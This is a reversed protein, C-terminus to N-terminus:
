GLGFEWVPFHEGTNEFGFLQYLKLSATNDHQTNVSIMPAGTSDFYEVLGSLLARGIGRGQWGPLVALRALHGNDSGATSIQYGILRGGAEAVTATAAHSLAERLAAVSYQWPSEFAAADVAFMARLDSSRAPRIEVSHPLTPRKAHPTSGLTRCLTVVHNVQAFQWRQLHPTLWNGMLMCAVTAANLEILVDKTIGWLEDLMEDTEFAEVVAALRLWATDPPDPPAALAAVAVKGAFVLHFPKKGLWAEPPRWDLHTHVKAESGLLQNLRWRDATHAPRATLM